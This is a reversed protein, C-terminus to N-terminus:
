QRVSEGNMKLAPECDFKLGMFFFLDHFYSINLILRLLIHLQAKLKRYRAFSRM